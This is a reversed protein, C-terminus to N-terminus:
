LLRPREEQCLRPVLAVGAMTGAPCEKSASSKEGKFQLGMYEGWVGSCQLKFDYTDPDGFEKRGQKVELGDRVAAAPM